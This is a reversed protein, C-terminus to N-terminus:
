LTVIEITEGQEFVRVEKIVTRLLDRGAEAGLDQVEVSSLSDWITTLRSRRYEAEERM